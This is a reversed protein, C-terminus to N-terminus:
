KVTKIGTISEVFSVYIDTSALTEHGLWLQVQSITNGAILATTAFTHRLIHPSMRVKTINARKLAVKVMFYIGNPTYSNGTGSKQIFYNGTSEEQLDLFEMLDNVIEDPIPVNREKNFKGIVRLWATDDYLHMDYKKLECLENARLGTHLMLSLACRVLMGQYNRPLSDIYAIFLKREHQSLSLPLRTPQKGRNEKKTKALIKYVPNIEIKGDEVLDYYIEHILWLYSLRSRISIDNLKIEVFQQIVTSSANEISIDYEKLFRVFTAFMYGYKNKSKESYNHRKAWEKFIVHIEVKQNIVKTMKESGAM